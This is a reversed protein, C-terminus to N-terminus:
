TKVPKRDKRQHPCNKTLGCIVYSKKQWWVGGSLEAGEEGTDTCVGVGKESMSVVSATHVRIRAKFCEWGVTYIYM